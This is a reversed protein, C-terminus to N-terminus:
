SSSSPSNHLITAILWSAVTVELQSLINDFSQYPSGACALSQRVIEEPHHHFSHVSHEFL